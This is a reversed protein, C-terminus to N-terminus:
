RLNNKQILEEAYNELLLRRTTYFSLPKNFWKIAISARIKDIDNHYRRGHNIMEHYKLILQRRKNTLRYCNLNFVYISNEVLDQISCFRNKDIPYDFNCNKNASLEGTRKNLVFLSPSNIIFLPNLLHNDVENSITSLNELHSKHSDCSLNEPLSHNINNRDEYGTGGLCAGLVNDWELAWNKTSTRDSKSHFHEVRKSHTSMGSLDQECYCCLESQDSFILKKLENYDISKNYNYFDSWTSDPNLSLFKTLKNPPPTKTIKKLKL